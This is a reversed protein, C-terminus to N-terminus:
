RLLRHLRRGLLKEVEAAQVLARADVRGVEDGDHVGLFSLDEVLSRHRVDAVLQVVVAPVAAAGGAVTGVARVQDDGAEAGRPDVDEVDGVIRPRRPDLPHDLPLLDQCLGAVRPRVGDVAHGAVVDDDRHEAVGVSVAGAAERDEVRLRELDLAAPLVAALCRREVVIQYWGRM